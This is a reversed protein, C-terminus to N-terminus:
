NGRWEPKRKQLWAAIGEKADETKVLEELYIKEARALGKDLHMSDWAYFAKKAVALAAPSLKLLHDVTCQVSEQLAGEPQAENALGWEAAEKGSTNIIRGATRNKKTFYKKAVAQVQEPTVASIQQIEKFLDHWDGTLGYIVRFVLRGYDHILAEVAQAAPMTDMGM